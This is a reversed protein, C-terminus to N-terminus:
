KINRSGPKIYELGEKCLPCDKEEYSKVDIKVSSYLNYPLEINDDRRDVISCIAVVEGGLEEILKAVELSSKGTTVVDETIIVKQGKQIEFGRRLTMVGEQRETFINSKKLQRGLEYAVIIGGMAPGVVMDFDLDKIKEVVVKLVKEAKDPYQLLKACQCYKDSHRGSSLLFHGELLASCEKLIDIIFENKNEM